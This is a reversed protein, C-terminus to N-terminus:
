STLDAISAAIDHSMQISLNHILQKMRVETEEAFIPDMAGRTFKSAMPGPDMKAFSENLYQTLVRNIRAALTDIKTESNTSALETLLGSTADMMLTDVPKINGSVDDINKSISHFDRLAGGIKCSSFFIPLFCILLSSAIKNTLSS